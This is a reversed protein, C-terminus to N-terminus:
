DEGLIYSHPIETLGDYLIPVEKITRNITLEVQEKSIDEPISKYKFPISNNNMINKM